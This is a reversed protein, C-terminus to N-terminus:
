SEGRRRVPDQPVPPVQGRGRTATLLRSEMDRLDAVVADVDRAYLCHVFLTAPEDWRAAATGAVLTGPTITISSSFVAIEADTACRLPLEVIAPDVSLGPTAIDRGLAFSGKVLEVLVYVAYRLMDFAKM